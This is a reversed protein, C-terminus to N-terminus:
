PRARARGFAPRDRLRKEYAELTGELVIGTSTGWMLVHGLLLDAATFGIDLLWTRDSLHREVVGCSRLYLRECARAVDPVALDPPLLSTHLSRTWLHADLETLAFSVWQDHLAREHTGPRPVLGSAPYLDGLYTMIAASEFLRFGDPMELVPIKGLPHKALFEPRRGEGAMLDVDVAEYDLGLEELM